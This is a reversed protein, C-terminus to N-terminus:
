SERQIRVHPGFTSLGRAARQAEDFKNQVSALMAATRLPKIEAERAVLERRKVAAWDLTELAQAMEVENECPIFVPTIGRAPGLDTVTMATRNQDLSVFTIRRQFRQLLRRRGDAPCIAMMTGDPDPFVQGTERDMMLVSRGDNTVELTFDGEAVELPRFDRKLEFEFLPNRERIIEM